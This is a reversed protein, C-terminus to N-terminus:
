EVIGPFTATIQARLMLGAGVDEQV